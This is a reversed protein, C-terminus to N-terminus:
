ASDWRKVKDDDNRRWGPAEPVKTIEAGDRRRGSRQAIGASSSGQVQFLVIGTSVGLGQALVIFGLKGALGKWVELNGQPPHSYTYTHM